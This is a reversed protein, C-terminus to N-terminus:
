RGNSLVMRFSSIVQGTVRLGLLFIALGLVLIWCTWLIVAASSLLMPLGFEKEVLDSFTSIVFAQYSVWTSSLVLFVFMMTLIAIVVYSWCILPKWWTAISGFTFLHRTVWERLNVVGLLDTMVWYGDFKFIPNMAFLGGFVILFITFYWFPSPYFMSAVVLLLIYLIQFYVGGLSVVVRRSRSMAWSETVDTYFAPFIYYLGIGIGLPRGGYRMVAAAHGLEHFFVSLLYLLFAAFLHEVADPRAAVYFISERLDWLQWLVAFLACVVVLPHFLWIFPKSLMSTPVSSLLQTRVLFGKRSAVTTQEQSDLINKPFRSLVEDIEGDELLLEKSAVERFVENNGQLEIFLRLPLITDRSILYFSAGISVLCSHDDSLDSSEHLTLSSIGNMIKM